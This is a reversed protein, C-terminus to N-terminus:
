AKAREKWKQIDGELNWKKQFYESVYGGWASVDDVAEELWARPIFVYGDPLSAAAEIHDPLARIREAARTVAGARAMFRQEQAPSTPEKCTWMEAEADRLAACREREARRADRILDDTAPKLSTVTNAEIDAAMAAALRQKDHDYKQYEMM